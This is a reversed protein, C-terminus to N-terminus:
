VQRERDRRLIPLSSLPSEPADASVRALIERASKEARDLVRPLDVKILAGARKVLQGAIMVDRVDHATAQFVVSGAADHRPRMTFSDGGLVILDAQKGPALSGVKAELGCAQAGNVTVWQLVDRARYSLKEPMAGSRNILDNDAFRQYALGLRMQTFLDGSNLSVIDCSLTPKIGFQRCKGFVPAGMGMNLETEPSISVKANSRALMAWEEDGLANCHIHVQDAGLLGAADMERVGMCIASGWVCGTHAAIRGGVRRAAEIEAMTDAWPVLGVETLAVGTTLLGGPQLSASIRELDAIRASHTAFARSDPSSAFFGYCFLARIGAHSLGDLAADAHMPTNNCHSFDLITTVGANIAELAGLYNGIYVDEPNYARCLALRVGNFYDNLTWDACLGRMQTQWTHRHTDVMGPMVIHGRADILEADLAQIRPAIATILDDEVLVDGAPLDGLQPDMTLIHGGQILIRQKTM